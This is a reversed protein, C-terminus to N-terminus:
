PDMSMGRGRRDEDDRGPEIRFFFVRRIKTESDRPIKGKLLRSKEFDVFFDSNEDGCSIERRNEPEARPPLDGSIASAM